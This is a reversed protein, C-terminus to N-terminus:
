HLNELVEADLVKAGAAANSRAQEPRTAGPIAVPAVPHSIVFRLATTVLDEKVQPQIEKLRELNQEFKTRGTEGKNWKSRVQDEFVTNEDYRGSLLGMALPGRVLVALNKDLCFPLLEEEPKTNLLSYDLEVVACEGESVDYFKRLVDISDTSIGYERIFGEDRLRQFGEIYISPDEIDAEHCLMADVYDTRMRGCCAHGCGRIMDATTKPVGQGTRKGWHGIKSIVFIKERDINKLAKGLRVESLGNPSGYSEATDFLNIGSDYASRVITEAQEDSMEGWQNGINWCGQGITSVKWGTKGFERYLM